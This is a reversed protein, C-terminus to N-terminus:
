PSTQETIGEDDVNVSVQSTYDGFNVTCRYDWEDKAKECQALRASMTQVLKAETEEATLKDGGCGGLALLAVALAGLRKM